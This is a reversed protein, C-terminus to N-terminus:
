QAEELKSNMTPFYHDCSSIAVKIAAIFLNQELIVDLLGGQHTVELGTLRDTFTIVLLHRAFDAVLKSGQQFDITHIYRDVQPVRVVQGDHMYTSSPFEVGGSSAETTEFTKFILRMMTSIQTAEAQNPLPIGNSEFNRVKSITERLKKSTLVFECHRVVKAPTLNIHSIASELTDLEAKARQSTPDVAHEFFYDRIQVLIPVYYSDFTLIGSDMVQDIVDM